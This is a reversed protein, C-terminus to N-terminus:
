PQTSAVGSEYNLHLLKVRLGKKSLRKQPSQQCFINRPNYKHWTKLWALMKPLRKDKCSETLKWGLSRSTATTYAAKRNWTNWNEVMLNWSQKNLVYLMGETLFVWCVWCFFGLVFLHNTRKLSWNQFTTIKWVEISKTNEVYKQEYLLLACKCSIDNIIM